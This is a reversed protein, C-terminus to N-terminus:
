NQAGIFDILFNDVKLVCNHLSLMGMRFPLFPPMGPFSLLFALCAMLASVVVPQLIDAMKPVKNKEGEDISKSSSQERGLMECFLRMEGSEELHVNSVHMVLSLLIKCGQMLETPILM